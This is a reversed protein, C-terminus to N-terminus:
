YEIRGFTRWVGPDGSQVCVWGIYSGATPSRDLVVEGAQSPGKFRPAEAVVFAPEVVNPTGRSEDGIADVAAGPEFAALDRLENGRVIVGTAQNILHIQYNNTLGSTGSNLVINGSVIADQVTSVLIGSRESEAVTNNTVLAGHHNELYIGHAGCGRLSNGTVLTQTKGDGSGNTLRIGCSVNNNTPNTVGTVRNESVITGLPAAGGDLSNVLIGVGTGGQLVNQSCVVDRNSSLQIGTGVVAGQPTRHGGFAVAENGTVRVRSSGNVYLATKSAHVVTCGRVTVGETNAVAIGDADCGDIRVREILVDKGGFVQLLGHGLGQGQSARGRLTVDRITFGEVNQVRLLQVGGQAEVLAASPSGEVLTPAEVRVCWNQGAARSVRVPFNPLVLRGGAAAQFATRVENSYDVSGDTVFGPPLMDILHVTRSLESSTSPMTLAPAVIPAVQRKPSGGVFAISAFVVVTALVILLIPTSKM